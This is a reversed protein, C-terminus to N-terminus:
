KKKRTTSRIDEMLNPNRKRGPEVLIYKFVNLIRESSKGETFHISGMGLDQLTYQELGLMQYFKKIWTILENYADSLIGAYFILVAIRAIDTRTWENKKIEEKLLDLLTQNSCEVLKDKVFSAKFCNDFESSIHDVSLKRSEGESTLGLTPQRKNLEFDDEATEPTEDAEINENPEPAKGMKGQEVEQTQVEEVVQHVDQQVTQQANQQVNQQVNVTQPEVKVAQLNQMHIHVIAAAKEPHESQGTEKVQEALELVHTSKGKRRILTIMLCIGCFGGTLICIQCYLDFRNHEHYLEQDREINHIIGNQEAQIVDIHHKACVFGIICAFILFTFVLQLFRKM